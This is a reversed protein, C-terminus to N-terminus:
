DGPKHSERFPQEQRRQTSRVFWRLVHFVGPVHRILSYTRDVLRYGAGSRILEVEALLRDRDALLGDRDALLRDRDALLGDRDALLRDRDALLEDYRQRLVSHESDLWTLTRIHDSTERELADFEEEISSIYEERLVIEEHRFTGDRDHSENSTVDPL